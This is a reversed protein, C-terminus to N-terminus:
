FLKSTTFKIGSFYPTIEMSINNEKLPETFNFFYDAVFFLGCAMVAIGTIGLTLNRNELMETFSASYSVSVSEPEVSGTDYSNSFDYKTGPTLLSPGQITQKSIFTGSLDNFTIYLKIDSLETNGSNRITGSYDENWSTDYNKTWTFSLMTIEPISVNKYTFGWYTLLAGMCTLTTGGVLKILNKQAANINACFFLLVIFVTINKKM